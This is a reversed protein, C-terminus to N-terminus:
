IYRVYLKLHQIKENCITTTLSCHYYIECQKKLTLTCLIKYTSSEVRVYKYVHPGITWPLQIYM